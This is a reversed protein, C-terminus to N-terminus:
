SWCGEPETAVPTQAPQNEGGGCAVLLADDLVLEFEDSFNNLDLDQTNLKWIDDGSKELVFKLNFSNAVLGM